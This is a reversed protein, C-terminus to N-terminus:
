RVMWSDSMDTLRIGVTNLITQHTMSCNSAPHFRCKGRALEQVESPFTASFMMTVRKGKEPMGGGSCLFFHCTLLLQSITKGLITTPCTKPLKSQHWCQLFQWFIKGNKEHLLQHAWKKYLASRFSECIVPNNQDNFPKSKLHGTIHYNPIGVVM